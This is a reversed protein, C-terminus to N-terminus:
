EVRPYYPELEAYSIPWDEGVGDTSRTAFDCEHLRPSMAAYHLTSGGVGKVRSYAFSASGKTTYVDRRPDPPDFANRAITEFDRRDSRYDTLPAFRRGAEIVVVSLGAEALEKAVVAGGSGSGVVVVDASDTRARAPVARSSRSPALPVLRVPERPTELEEYGLPMPPADDELWLWAVESTYFARLTDEVIVRYLEAAASSGSLMGRASGLYRSLGSRDPSVQRAHVREMTRLIASQADPDVEVFRRGHRRRAIEDVAALGRAYALRRAQRHALGREIERLVPLGLVEIERAGPVDESSPVIMCALADVLRAEGHTFWGDGTTPRRRDRAALLARRRPPLSFLLLGLRDIATKAGSRALRPVVIGVADGAARPTGGM